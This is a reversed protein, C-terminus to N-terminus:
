TACNELGREHSTFTGMPKCTNLRTWTVHVLSLHIGSLAACPSATYFKICNACITVLGRCHRPRSERGANFRRSHRREASASLTAAARVAAIQRHVLANSGHRPPGSTDRLGRVSIRVRRRFQQPSSLDRTRIRLAVCGALTSLGRQMVLPRVSPRM